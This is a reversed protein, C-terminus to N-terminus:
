APGGEGAVKHGIRGNFDGLAYLPKPRALYVTILSELVEQPDDESWDAYSLGAPPLYVGMVFAESMKLVVVNPCNHDSCVAIGLGMQFLAAAGGWAHKLEPCDPCAM